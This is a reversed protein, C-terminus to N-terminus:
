QNLMSSPNRKKFNIKSLIVIMNWTIKGHQNIKEHIMSEQLNMGGLQKSCMSMISLGYSGYPLGEFPLGYIKFKIKNKLLISNFLCQEKIFMKWKGSNQPKSHFRYIFSMFLSSGYLKYHLPCDWLPNILNELTNTSCVKCNSNIEFNISDQWVNITVVKYRM